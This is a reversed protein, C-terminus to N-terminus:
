HAPVTSAEKAHFIIPLVAPLRFTFDLRGDLRPASIFGVNATVGIELWQAVEVGVRPAIVLVKDDRQWGAYGRVQLSVNLRKWAQMEGALAFHTADNQRDSGQQWIYAGLSGYVNVSLNEWAFFKEGILLELLYAPANTFRRADYDKGSTTKTLFRVGIQPLGEGFDALLAKAGFRIDAKSVGSDRPLSWEARTQPSSWWLELPMGDFIVTVWKGFPASLRFTPTFSTDGRLGSQAAVGVRVMTFEDAWPAEVPVSPLANAGMTGPNVWPDGARATTSCALVTLIALVKRIM